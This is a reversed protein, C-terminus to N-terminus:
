VHGVEHRDRDDRNFFSGGCSCVHLKGAAIYAARVADRISPDVPTTWTPESDDGYLDVYADSQHPARDGRLRRM